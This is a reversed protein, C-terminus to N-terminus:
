LCQAMMITFSRKLASCIINLEEGYVAKDKMVTKNFLLLEALAIPVSMEYQRKTNAQSSGLLFCLFRVGSPLIVPFRKQLM